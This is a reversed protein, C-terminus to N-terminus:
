KFEGEECTGRGLVFRGRGELRVIRGGAPPARQLRDRLCQALLADDEFARLCQQRHILGVAEITGAARPGVRLVRAAELEALVAGFRDRELEGALADRVLQELRIGHALESELAVMPELFLPPQGLRHAVVRAGITILGHAPALCELEDALFQSRQLVRVFCLEIGGSAGRVFRRKQKLEEHAAEAGVVEGVARIHAM